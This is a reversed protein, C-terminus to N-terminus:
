KADFMDRERKQFIHVVIIIRRSFFLISNGHTHTNNIKEKEM